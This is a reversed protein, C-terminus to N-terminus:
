RSEVLLRLNELAGRWGEDHRTRVEDSPLREHTVTVTSGEEIAAFEVTVITAVGAHPDPPEWGWTYVLRRNEAIELFRGVVFSLEAQEPDSFGLRYAGGARLDIEVVPTSWEPSPHLWRKVHAPRTWLRFVESPPLPFQRTIRVIKEHPDSPEQNM